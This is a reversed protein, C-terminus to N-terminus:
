ATFKWVDGSRAPQWNLETQKEPTHFWLMLMWFPWCGMAELHQQMKNADVTDIKIGLTIWEFHQIIDVRQTVHLLQNFM